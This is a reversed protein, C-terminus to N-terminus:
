PLRQAARIALALDEPSRSSAVWAPAPDEPDLVPVRLGSHIWGRTVHFALPEFGTSMATEWDKGQLVEPAGLQGVDIQARGLHLVRANVRLVPSGIWALAIGGIVGIASLAAALTLSLPVVLLGLSAGAILVVIWTGIGPTLRESFEM